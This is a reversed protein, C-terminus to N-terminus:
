EGALRAAKATEESIIRLMLTRFAKARDEYFLHPMGAWEACASRSASIYSGHCFTLYEPLGDGAYLTFTEGRFTLIWSIIVARAAANLAFTAPFLNYVEDFPTIVEQWGYREPAGYFLADLLTRMAARNAGLHDTYDQLAKRRQEEAEQQQAQEREAEFTGILESMPDEEEELEACICLPCDPHREDDHGGDNHENELGVRDWCTRCYPFDNSDGLDAFATPKGCDACKWIHARAAAVLAKPKTGHQAIFLAKSNTYTKGLLTPM